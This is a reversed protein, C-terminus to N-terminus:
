GIGLSRLKRPLTNRGLGLLKAAEQRRGSTKELALRILTRELEPVAVALLGAEGAALRAEAWRALGESWTPAEPAGGGLEAPIDRLGIREGPALLSLRRCANVLQRV